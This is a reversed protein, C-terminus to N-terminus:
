KKFSNCLKLTAQAFTKNVRDNTFRPMPIPVPIPDSIVFTMIKLEMLGISGSKAPHGVGDVYDRSM